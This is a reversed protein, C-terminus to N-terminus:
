DLFDTPLLHSQAPEEPRAATPGQGTGAARPAENMRRMPSIFALVSSAEGWVCGWLLRTGAFSKVQHQDLAQQPWAKGKGVRSSQVPEAGLGWAEGTPTLPAAGDEKLEEQEVM